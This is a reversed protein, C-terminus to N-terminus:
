RIPEYVVLGQSPSKIDAGALAKKAKELRDRAQRLNPSGKIQYQEYDKNALEFNIQAEKLNYKAWKLDASTKKGDIVDPIISRLNRRAEKLKLNTQTINKDAERKRRDENILEQELTYEADTVAKELDVKDFQALLDGKKVYTGEPILHTIKGGRRPASIAMSKLPKLNGKVILEITLDGKEVIAYLKKDEKTDRTFFKNWSITVIGIVIVIIAIGIKKM